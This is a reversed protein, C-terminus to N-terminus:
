DIIRKTLFIKIKDYNKSYHTSDAMYDELYCDDNNNEIYKGVNHIQINYKNCLCELLIVFNNREYIYDHTTKTKLNLHPIIHIEINENFTLKCLKIIYNLDYEVEEDTIKKEILNYKERKNQSYYHNLPIDNYYMVKRSSIEIIIKNTNKDISKNMFNKSDNIVGSHFIDGFICNTLESPNNLIINNINTINELFFIIEKTTHLRAPFYDWVYDYMYRCSGIYFISM